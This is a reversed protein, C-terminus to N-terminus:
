RLKRHEWRHDCEREHYKVRIREREREAPTSGM